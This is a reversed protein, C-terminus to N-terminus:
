SVHVYSWEIQQVGGLGLLRALAATLDFQRGSERPGRDIVETLVRKGRYTLYLKTGCPLTPQEVGLTNAEIVGGCATHHGIQAGSEGATAVYSGVGQPLALHTKGYNHRTVTLVVAAGLVAVCALALERQLLRPKM